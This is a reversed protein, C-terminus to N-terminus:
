ELTSKLVIPAAYKFEAISNFFSWQSGANRGHSFCYGDALGIEFKYDSGQDYGDEITEVHDVKLLSYPLRGKQNQERM